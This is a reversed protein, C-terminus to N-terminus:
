NIDLLDVEESIKVEKKILEQTLYTITNSRNQLEKEKQAIITQQTKVLNRLELVEKYYNAKNYNMFQIWKAHTKTKIHASFKQSTNYCKDKKHSCPCYIGKSIIFNSPLHDVYNGQDDVSPIYTDPELALDM